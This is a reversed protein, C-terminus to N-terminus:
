DSIEDNVVVRSDCYVLGVTPHKSAADILKQLFTEDAYDDSEAIWVLTGNALAIGKKWQKFPSGSNAKNLVVQTILPHSTYRAIVSKSNDSSCDDLLIVDFDEFKQSLVTEIRKELFEAHNFNPIILSVM